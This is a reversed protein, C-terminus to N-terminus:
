KEWDKAAEVGSQLGHVTSFVMSPAFGGRAVRLWGEYSATQSGNASAGTDALWQALEEPTAFAPSIPTGETCTEYMMYHTATGPPFTPMYEDPTPQEGAWEAYSGSDSTDRPKWADKASYDRRLGEAWKAAGETWDKAAREYDEHLPILEGADDVPHEWKPPVMRVERGM